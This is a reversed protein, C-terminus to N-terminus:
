AAVALRLSDVAELWDAISHSGIRTPSALGSDAEAFDRLAKFALGVVPTRFIPAQGRATPECLLGEPFIAAQLRQRHALSAREWLTAMNTLTDEAFAVIAEVDLQENRANGLEVEALALDQRLEDRKTNYTPRDIADEVLLDALRKLKARLADVSARLRKRERDTTGQRKRWVDLVIANFLKMFERRPQLQQVLDVFATELAAKGIRVKSRCTPKPCFYYGYRRGTASRTWAATMADGCGSCRALGRLPFAPNDRRYSAVGRRSGLRVQVKNFTQEDVLPEFDGPVSVGWGPVEVRAIYVTSSLSRHFTPLAVDGGRARLRAHTEGITGWGCAFDEFASRMLAAREPDLVLSAGGREGRRYGFPPKWVWRGREVAAKMGAKTRDAKVDNDFQAIGALITEMLRGTSTDDVPETVSRLAVGFGALLGVLAHHDSAKRAFRSLNYVVVAGVTAKNERCYTLMRQLEARDASKASEGKEVFVRAVELGERKCYDECAKRQTPLSLNQTQETTSVRIYIAARM